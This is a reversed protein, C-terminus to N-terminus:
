IVELDINKSNKKKGLTKIKFCEVICDDSLGEVAYKLDGYAECEILIKRGQNSLPRMHTDISNAFYFGSYKRNESVESISKNNSVICGINYSNCNDIDALIPGQCDWYKCGFRLMNMGNHATSGNNSTVTTNGGEMKYLGNGYSICNVETALSNYNTTHYNFGDKSAYASVCDFLHINFEGNISFADELGRYFKCNDFYFKSSLSSGNFVGAGHTFGVNEFAVSTNEGINAFIIGTNALAIDLFDLNHAEYPNCYVESQSSVFFTGKNAVCKSLSSVKIYPIPIGYNDTQVFNVVDIPMRSTNGLTIVGKFISNYPTWSVDEKSRKVSTVWTFGSSSLSKFLVNKEILTSSLEGALPIVNELFNVIITNQTYYGTNLLSAFRSLQIPRFYDKGSYESSSGYSAVYINVTDDMDFPSNINFNHEYDNLKTKVISFPIEPFEKPIKIEGYNLENEIHELQSDVADLRDGLKSYSTGDNKVRADVIEANSNGANIILQDFTNELDVQRGTTNEVEKNIADMGDHISGRVDKGYLAGKINNLHTKIDAM